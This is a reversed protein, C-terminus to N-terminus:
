RAKAAEKILRQQARARMAATVASRAEQYGRRVFHTRLGVLFAHDSKSEGAKSKGVDIGVKASVRGSRKSRELRRGISARTEGTIVPAAAAISKRLVSLGAGLCSRAISNASRDKLHTLAKEIVDDGTVYKRAM